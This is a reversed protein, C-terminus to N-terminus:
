EEAESTNIPNMLDTLASELDTYQFEFGIQQLKEPM